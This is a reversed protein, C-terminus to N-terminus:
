QIYFHLHRIMFQKYAEEGFILQQPRHIASELLGMDKVGRIENPSYKSIIIDNIKIAEDVTIFESM